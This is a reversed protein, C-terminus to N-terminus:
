RARLRRRARGCRVNRAAHRPLRRVSNSPSRLAAPTGRTWAARRVSAAGPTPRRGARRSRATGARPGRTSSGPSSTAIVGISLPLTSCATSSRKWRSTIAPWSGWGSSCPHDARDCVARRATRRCRRGSRVSPGCRARRTVPLDVPLPEQGLQQEPEVAIGPMDGLAACAAIAESCRKPSSPSTVTARASPRRSASYPLTSRM